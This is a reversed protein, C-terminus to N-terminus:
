ASSVCTNYVEVQVNYDAIAAKLEEVLANYRKVLSNYEEVKQDYADGRKPKTNKIEDNKAELEEELDALTLQQESIRVSLAAGPSPCDAAPKGFEQVAMWVRRGEYTGRAVAVGIETYRPHLMNERHGPSNMWAQVLAADDKFNGLALNEGVMLYEYGAAQALDGPGEGGPSEHAFYQRAFMDDVKAQAAAALQGNFSLRPVGNQERRMNTETVVGAVTLNSVIEATPGRLPPPAIIAQEFHKLQTVSSEIGTQATRYLDGLESRFYYGAGLAAIILILLPAFKKTIM